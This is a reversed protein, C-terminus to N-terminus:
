LLTHFMGNFCIHSCFGMYPVVACDCFWLWCFFVIFISWWSSKYIHVNYSYILIHFYLWCCRFFFVRIPDQKIFVNTVSQGTELACVWETAVCVFLGAVLRCFFLILYSYLSAFFFVASVFILRYITYKKRTAANFRKRPLAVCMMMIMANQECYVIYISLVIEAAVAFISRLFIYCSLHCGIFRTCFSSPRWRSETHPWRHFFDAIFCLFRVRAVIFFFIVGTSVTPAFANVRIHVVHLLLHLLHCRVSAIAHKDDIQSEHLFLSLSLSLSLTLHFFFDLNFNLM